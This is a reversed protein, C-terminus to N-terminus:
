RLLEPAVEEGSRLYIPLTDLWDALDREIDRIKAYSIKYSANTSGQVFQDLGKIPYVHKIVDALILILRTHANSAVYLSTAGPPMSLVTDETIYEDDIEIPLTQNIDDSRLMVPFGLMASVYIDMKHITWFVRKRTEREIPNFGGCLDRHLGMRISSRLAIGIYSYCTSFEAFSYLFLVMFLVTQLCTIDRCDTIDIM